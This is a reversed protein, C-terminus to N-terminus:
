RAKVKEKPTAQWISVATDLVYARADAMNDFGAVLPILARGDPLEVIYNGVEGEHSIAAAGATSGHYRWFLVPLKTLGMSVPCGKADKEDPWYEWVFADAAAPFLRCTLDDYDVGHALAVFVSSGAVYTVECANDKRRGVSVVYDTNILGMDTMIFNAMSSNRKQEM